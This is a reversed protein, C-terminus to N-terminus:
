FFGLLSRGVLNGGFTETYYYLQDRWQDSFRSLECVSWRLNLYTLDGLKSEVLLANTWIARSVRAEGRISIVLFFSTLAFCV